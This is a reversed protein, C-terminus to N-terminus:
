SGQLGLFGPRLGQSSIPSFTSLGSGLNMNLDLSSAWALWVWNRAKLCTGGQVRGLATLLLLNESHPALQFRFSPWCGSMGPSQLPWDPEGNTPRPTYHGPGLGWGFHVSCRLEFLLWKIQHRLGELKRLIRFAQAHSLCVPWCSCYRPQRTGM